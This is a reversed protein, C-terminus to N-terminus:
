APTGPVVVFTELLFDDDLHCSRRRLRPSAAFAAHVAATSSIRDDFDHRWHCLVLLAGDALSAHAAAALAVLAAADFYYALESVVILDFRQQPWGAPLMRQDVSVSCHRAGDVLRVQASVDTADALVGLVSVGAADAVDAVDALRRRAAAVASAAGDSALLRDCRAALAVSMEGNGCGPEFVSTYRERDLSALVIARKRREYWSARVQWPDESAAYLAEFHDTHAPLAANM